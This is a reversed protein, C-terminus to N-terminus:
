HVIFVRRRARSAAVYWLQNCESVKDNKNLDRGDIGVEDFTSGQSNHVTLAYCNRIDAFVELHNYYAKWFFPNKKANRLLSANDKNYRKTDDEHLVYIQRITKEDTVVKLQWAKYSSYRDECFDLVEIETSTPLIISKGDPATVPSRTILREGIIFRPANEGYIKARINANYYDVKKNTWCLIRFCDPNQTFNKSVKKFAYRLLTNEKVMFAGNTKDPLYKSFPKFAKQSKVAKRCATVFELLPSDTGQRVVETLIAKNPVSFSLSKVEDVPPLQAPDGMLILQKNTILSRSISETIWHWLEKNVMSCEDLFVLDFLSLMSPATQELVKNGGRRVLGLGLLQHITFFDVGYIENKSAMRQLVRVAKNTPATLAIRKGRGVLLKILQFIITSKGTGAYGLILFINKTSKLFENMLELAKLQQSTLSFDATQLTQIM